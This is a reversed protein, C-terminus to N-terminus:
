FLNGKGFVDEGHGAYSSKGASHEQPLQSIGTVEGVRFLNYFISSIVGLFMIRSLPCPSPNDGLLTSPKESFVEVEHCHPYNVSAGEQFVIIFVFLFCCALLHVFM